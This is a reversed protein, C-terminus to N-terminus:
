VSALVDDILRNYSLAREIPVMHGAGPYTIYDMLVGNRDLVDAMFDSHVPPTLLDRDGVVVLTPVTLAELGAVVNLRYMASGWAARSRASGRSILEDTFNVHAARAHPGLAMYHTLKSSMKNSPLPVPTSVFARAVLPRVARTYTPLNAPTLLQQQVVDRATTSTLVVAAIRDAMATGSRDGGLRGSGYQAAWSMIAMGGMSHGVLIARKGPPLLTSLVAELDQGLMDVTVRAKGMESLGHGRHDFAIVPRDGGFHNTQPNWFRTSCTWGHVFVLVEDGPHEDLNVSTEAHLLTGDATPVVTSRMLHGPNVLLPDPGDDVAPPHKAAARAIGGVVLALDGALLGAAGVGALSARRRRASRPRKVGAGDLRKAEASGAM